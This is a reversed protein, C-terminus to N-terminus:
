LYYVVNLFGLGAFSSTTRRVQRTAVDAHCVSLIIMQTKKKPDEMPPNAHVVTPRVNMDYSTYHYYMMLQLSSILSAQRSRASLISTIISSFEPHRLMRLITSQTM